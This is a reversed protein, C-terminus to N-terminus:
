AGSFSPNTTVMSGDTGEVVMQAFGSQAVTRYDHEIHPPWISLFVLDHEGINVTRHAWRAPVYCMHGPIMEITGAEGEKTQLLLLGQGEMVVYVEDGDTTHFHGRTMHYERGVKGPYIRTIGFSLGRDSGEYEVEWFEYIIPDDVALLREMAEKDTYLGRMDSLRRVIRRAGQFLDFDRPQVTLNFPMLITGM